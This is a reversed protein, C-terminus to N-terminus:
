TGSSRLSVIEVTRVPDVSEKASAPELTLDIMVGTVIPTGTSTETIGTFALAPLIREDVLIPTTDRLIRGSEVSFVQATGDPAHTTLTAPEVDISAAERVTGAIEAIVREAERQLRLSADGARYSTSTFVLFYFSAATIASALLSAILLEVLTLGANQRLRRMM